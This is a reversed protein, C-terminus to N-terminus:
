DKQISGALFSAKIPSALLKALGFVEFCYKRLHLMVLGLVV